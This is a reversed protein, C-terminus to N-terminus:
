LNNILEALESAQHKRSYIYKESSQFNFKYDNEWSKVLVKLYELLANRESREFMKGCKVEQLIHAADGDAPGIAIIPRGAGIYEFLKGTLIGNDNKVSPILLLLASAKQMFVIAEQHSVHATLDVLEQMSYKGILNKVQNSISGVFHIRIDLASKEQKLLKVASFFIEPDYNDAITGVYTIVFQDRVPEVGASFDSTDFGNPIVKFKKGDIKESKNILLRKIQESVVVAADCGLLVKREYKMDLKRSFITHMLDKYYYIDSWPDRLDAIWKISPFHRKLKLGILQSSHPPSSIIITDIKEEGIIEMASKVAYGVWGRRADPIFFNGRIFRFVKEFVSEKGSNSFGGYPIKKKGSIKLFLKLPEFSDAHFVKIDPSIEGSLTVDYIPYSAKEAEVTLVSADIGFERLYKVFKLSRQVGAGGSPPWYYTIYLIKKM